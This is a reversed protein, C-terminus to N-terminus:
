VVSGARNARARRRRPQNKIKGNVLEPFLKEADCNLAESIAHAQEASIPRYSNLIQSLTTYHWGLAKALQWQRLGREALLVRFLKSDMFLEM